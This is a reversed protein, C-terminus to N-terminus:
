KKDLQGFVKKLLENVRAAPNTRIAKEESAVKTFLADLAKGMVYEELNVNVVDLGAVKGVLSGAVQNYAKALANWSQTTSYNAVLPKDLSQKVKPAFAASLQTYTTRHLYQTAADDAGFLISVADNITMSTIATKFIPVATQVADEASRNLSLVARNVLDQGGPILKLNDVIPQAEPPLLIKLVADNFFGNEVGLINVAKEIGVNLSSKLGAVNETNSVGVGGINAQSAVQLLEACSAGSVAIGIILLFKKM